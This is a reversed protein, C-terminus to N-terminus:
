CCLSSHILTFFASFYLKIVVHRLYIIFTAALNPGNCLTDCRTEWMWLTYVICQAWMM